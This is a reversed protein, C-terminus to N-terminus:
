GDPDKYVSNGRGLIPGGKARREGPLCRSDKLSLKRPCKVEDPTFQFFNGTVYEWLVWCAEKSLGWRMKVSVLELGAKVVPDRSRPRGPGTLWTGWTGMVQCFWLIARLTESSSFYIGSRNMTWQGFCNCLSTKHWHLLSLYGEWLPRCYIGQVFIFDVMGNSM